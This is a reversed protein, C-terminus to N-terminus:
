KLKYCLLKYKYNYDGIKDLDTMSIAKEVPIIENVAM